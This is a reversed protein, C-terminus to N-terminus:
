ISRGVFNTEDFHPLKGCPVNIISGSNLNTTSKNYNFSISEYTKNSKDSIAKKTSKSTQYSRDDDGYESSSSEDENSMINKGKKKEM